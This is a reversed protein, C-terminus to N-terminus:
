RHRRKVRAACAVILAVLLVGAAAGWIAATLTNKVDTLREIREWATLTQVVGDVLAARTSLHVTTQADLAIEKELVAFGDELVAEDGGTVIETAPLRLVLLAKSEELGKEYFKKMEYPFNEIGATRIIEGAEITGEFVFGQETEGGDASMNVTMFPTWQPDTLMETLLEWAQAYDTGKQVRRIRIDAKEDDIWRWVECKQQEGYNALQKMSRQIEARDVDGVEAFDIEIHYELYANYEADIGCEITTQSCGALFLLALVILGVMRKM